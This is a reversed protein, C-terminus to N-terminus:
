MIFTINWMYFKGFASICLHSIYEYGKSLYFYQYLGDYETFDGYTQLIAIRHSGHVELFTLTEHAWGINLDIDTIAEVFKYKISLVKEKGASKKEEM